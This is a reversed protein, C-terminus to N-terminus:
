SKFLTPRRCVLPFGRSRSLRVSSSFLESVLKLVNVHVHPSRLVSCLAELAGDFCGHKVLWKRRETYINLVDKMTFLYNALVSLLQTALSIDCEAIVRCHARYVEEFDFTAVICEKGLNVLNINTSSFLSFLLDIKETSVLSPFRTLVTKFIKSLSEVSSSSHEFIKEGVMPLNRGYLSTNGFLGLHNDKFSAGSDVMIKLGRPSGEKGEPTTPNIPISDKPLQNHNLAREFLGMLVSISRIDMDEDCQSNVCAYMWLSVVRAFYPELYAIGMPLQETVPEQERSRRRSHGETPTQFFYPPLETLLIEETTLPNLGLSFYVGELASLVKDVLYSFESRSLTKRLVFAKRSNASEASDDTEGKQMELQRQLFVLLNKLTIRSEFYELLQSSKLVSNALLFGASCQVDVGIKEDLVIANLTSVVESGFIAYSEVKLWNNDHVPARPKDGFSTVASIAGSTCPTLSDNDQVIGSLVTAAVGGAGAPVKKGSGKGGFMSKFFSKAFSTGSNMPPGDHKVQSKNDVKLNSSSGLPTSFQIKRGGEPTLPSGLEGGRSPVQLFPRAMSMNNPESPVMSTNTITDGLNMSLTTTGLSIFDRCRRWISNDAALFHPVCQAVQLLKQPIESSVLLKLIEERSALVEALKKEAEESGDECCEDYELTELLAATMQVLVVVNEYLPLLRLSSAVADEGAPDVLGKVSLTFFSDLVSYMAWHSYLKATKVATIVTDLALHMLEDFANCRGLQLLHYLHVALFESPEHPNFSENLLIKSAAGLRDDSDRCQELSSFYFSKWSSMKSRDRSLVDLASSCVEYGDEYLASKDHPTHVDNASHNEDTPEQAELPRILQGTQIRLKIGNFMYTTCPVPESFLFENACEVSNECCYCVCRLIESVSFVALSTISTRRQSCQAAHECFSVYVLSMWSLHQGSKVESCFKSKLQSALDADENVISMLKKESSVCRLFYLIKDSGLSSIVEMKKSKEAESFVRKVFQLLSILLETLTCVPTSSIYGLLVAKQAYAIRWFLSAFEAWTRREGVNAEEKNVLVGDQLGALPPPPGRKELISKIKDSPPIVPTPAAQTELSVISSKKSKKDPTQRKADPTEPPNVEPVIAKGGRARAYLLLSHAACYLKEISSYDKESLVVPSM